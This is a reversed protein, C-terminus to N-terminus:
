SGNVCSDTANSFLQQVAFTGQSTALDFEHGNWSCKDGIEESSGDYWGSDGWYMPDTITEAIEHGFVIGVGDLTGGPGASVQNTGCNGDTQYPMSAYPEPNWYTGDYHWTDGHWACFGGGAAVFGDPWHGQPYVITFIADQNWNNLHQRATDAEAEEASGSVPNPPLPDVNDYWVGAVINGYNGCADSICPVRKSGWYTDWYQTVTNLWSTAKIGNGFNQMYAAENYPDSGPANFGWFILYIKPWRQIFGNHYTMLPAGSATFSRLHLARMAPSYMGHIPHQSKLYHRVINSGSSAPAAPLPASTQGGGCASLMVAAAAAAALAKLRNM